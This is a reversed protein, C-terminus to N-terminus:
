GGKMRKLVVGAPQDHLGRRFIKGDMVVEEKEIHDM